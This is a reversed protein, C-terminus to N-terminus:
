EKIFTKRAVGLSQDFRQIEEPETLPAGFTRVGGDDNIAIFTRFGTSLTSLFYDLGGACNFDVVTSVPGDYEEADDSMRPVYQNAEGDRIMNNCSACVAADATASLYFTTCGCNCTFIVEPEPKKPPLPVVNSM